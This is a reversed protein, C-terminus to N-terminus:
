NAKIKRRWTDITTSGESVVTCLPFILQFPKPSRNVVRVFRTESIKEHTVLGWGAKTYIQVFYSVDTLLYIAAVIDKVGSHEVFVESNRHIGAVFQIPLCNVKILRM